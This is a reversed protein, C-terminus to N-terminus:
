DCLRKGGPGIVSTAETASRSLREATLAALSARGVCVTDCAAPLVAPFAIRDGEIKANFRCGAQFRVDLTARGSATGRATCSQAEGYDVSAGIAYDDGQPVVCVRDTDSSYVGVPDISSPDAVIGRAIAARELRDGATDATVSNRTAASGCSALLIACVVVGARM